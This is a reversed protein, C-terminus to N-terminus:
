ALEFIHNKTIERREDPGNMYEVAPEKDHSGDNAPRNVPVNSPVANRGNKTLSHSDVTCM